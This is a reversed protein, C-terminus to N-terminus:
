PKTISHTYPKDAQLYITYVGPNGDFDGMLKWKNDWRTPNMLQLYYYSEPSSASPR